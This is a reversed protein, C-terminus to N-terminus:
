KVRVKNLHHEETGVVIFPFEIKENNKESKSNRLMLEKLSYYRKCIERLSERKSEVKAKTESV